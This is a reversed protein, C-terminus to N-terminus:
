IPCSYFLVVLVKIESELLVGFVQLGGAHSHLPAPQWGLASMAPFSAVCSGPLCDLNSGRARQKQKQFCPTAAWDSPWAGDLVPKLGFCSSVRWKRSASRCVAQAAPGQLQRAALQYGIMLVDLCADAVCHVDNTTADRRSGCPRPQAATFEQSGGTPIDFCSHISHWAEPRAV